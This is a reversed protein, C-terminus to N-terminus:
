RTPPTLVRYFGDPADRGAARAEGLAAAIQEAIGIRYHHPDWYNADNTTVASRIRFDVVAANYREGIAAIRAKCETDIAEARTGPRPQLAVHVPMMTLTVATTAPVRALLADLWELAPFRLHRGDLKTSGSTRQPPNVAAARRIHFRARAPDYQAEDPVFIEYGDSRIREPWLGLYNLALRGAIELSTLNLLEPLDNFPNEDYLWPPFTRFTLRKRDAEEDCWTVDLGFILTKPQPVHRLFLETLQIQEWPTGSNLGLNALRGGFIGNLREPDLLRITSTGFVAGDYRGSRIIQPYMFRQNLDMIPRPPRTPSTRTGFPDLALVFGYLLATLAVVTAAFLLTFRRWPLPAKQSTMPAHDRGPAAM